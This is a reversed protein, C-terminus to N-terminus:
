RECQSNLRRFTRQHFCRPATSAARGILSSELRERCRGGFPPASQNRSARRRQGVGSLEFDEEEAAEPLGAWMPAIDRLSLLILMGVGLTALLVALWTPLNMALTAPRPGALRTGGDASGLELARALWLEYGSARHRPAVDRHNRTHESTGEGRAELRGPDSGDSTSVAQM